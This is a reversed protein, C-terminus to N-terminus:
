FMIQLLKLLHHFAIYRLHRDHTREGKEGPLVDLLPIGIVKAFAAERRVICALLLIRRM